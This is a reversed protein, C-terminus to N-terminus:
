KKYSLYIIRILVFPLILIVGFTKSGVAPPLKEFAALGMLEGCFLAAICALLQEYNTPKIRWVRVFAVLFLFLFLSGV